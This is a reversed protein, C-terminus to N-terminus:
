YLPQSSLDSRIIKFNVNLKRSMEQVLEFIWDESYPAVYVKEILLDLYIPLHKGHEVTEKHSNTGPNWTSLDTIARLERECDYSKLKTLFPNCANGTEFTEMNYDLYNVLGVQTHYNRDRELSHVLRDYTSQIAIGENSKSYLKWMAESEYENIHWCNILMKSRLNEYWTLYKRGGDNRAIHAQRTYSGEFPDGLKDTRTFYLTENVVLSLFKTIDMYKWIKTNKDNPAKFSPHDHFMNEKKFNDILVRPYAKSM